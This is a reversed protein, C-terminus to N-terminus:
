LIAQLERFWTSLRYELQRRDSTGIMIASNFAPDRQPLEVLLKVIEEKHTVLREKELREFSVLIMDMVARNIRNGEPTGDSNLRKFANAGLVAAAKDVASDFRNQM